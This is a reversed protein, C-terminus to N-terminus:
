HLLSTAAESAGDLLSFVGLLDRAQQADTAPHGVYLAVVSDLLGDDDLKRLLGEVDPTLREATVRVVVEAAGRIRKLGAAIRERSGGDGLLRRRRGHMRLPGDLTVQLRTLGASVLSGPAIERLLAGDTLLHGAYGIGERDCARRMRASLRLVHDATLLPEGGFFALDLWAGGKEEVWSVVDRLLVSAASDTLPFSGDDADCGQRRVDSALRLDLLCSVSPVGDQRQTFQSSRVEDEFLVRM